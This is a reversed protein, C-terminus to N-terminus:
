DELFMECYISLYCKNDKINILNVYGDAISLKKDKVDADISMHLGRLKNLWSFDDNNNFEVALLKNNSTPIHIVEYEMIHRCEDDLYFQIM